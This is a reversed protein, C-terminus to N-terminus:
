VEIGQKVRYALPVLAEATKIEPHKRCTLTILDMAEARKEGWAVMVELAEVQYKEFRRNESPTAAGAAFSSLKGKLEALMLQAMRKGIGPLTCLLKEDGGEIADAITAIPVSLSKLGKRIGVGKVSTFKEFFDKEAQNLFGVLRPILNGGGLTGEYYEMTCLTIEEGIRGGLSSVAYGPLLVQYCIPGVQLLGSDKELHVLKGQIQAIM